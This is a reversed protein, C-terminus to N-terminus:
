RVKERKKIMKVINEIIEDETFRSYEIEYINNRNHDINKISYGSKVFQKALRKLRYRKKFDTYLIIHTNNTESLIESLGSRLTIKAEARGSLYYIEDLPMNEENRILPINIQEELKKWFRAPIQDCTNAKTSIFIFKDINNIKLYKDIKEKTENSIKIKNTNHKNEKSIRFYSCMETLYHINDSTKIRNETDIYFKLPFALYYSQNNIKFIKENIEYKLNNILIYKIDPTLMKILSIHSKKSTAIIVNDNQSILENIMYKLFLYAEGLNSKLIFIKNYSEPIQKQLDKKVEKLKNIKKSLIGFITFEITDLDETREYITYNFLSIRRKETYINFRKEKTIVGILNKIKFNYDKTIDCLTIGVVKYKERNLDIEKEIIKM